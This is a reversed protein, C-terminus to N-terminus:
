YPSPTNRFTVFVHMCGPIENQQSLMRMGSGIRRSFPLIFEQVLYYGNTLLTHAVGALASLLLANM